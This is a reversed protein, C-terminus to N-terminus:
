KATGQRIADCMRAVRSMARVDHVRVIDAGNWIAIAVTAATGELRDQVPTGLIAGITGKNSTGALIPRGFKKFEALRRLLELNHEMNKGFGFGPDLWINEERIGAALCFKLREEFFASIDDVVDGYRPEQQMTRPTGQMHMLVYGCQAEAVVEALAPDLRFASIDNVIAAGCQLARRATDAHYTDISVVADLDRMADLLPKVRAWEADASIPAAGPRTSEGGVDIIDAGDQIAQRVHALAADCSSLRGGDSFSDPTLNVIGM